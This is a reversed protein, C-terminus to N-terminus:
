LISIETMTNEEKIKFKNYKKLTIKDLFLEFYKVLFM